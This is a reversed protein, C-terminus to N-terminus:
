KFAHVQADREGMRMCCASAPKGHKSAAAIPVLRNSAGEPAMQQRAHESSSSTSCWARHGSSCRCSRLCQLAMDEVGELLMAGQLAARLVQYRALPHPLQDWLRTVAKTQIGAEWQSCATQMTDAHHVQGGGCDARCATDMSTCWVGAWKASASPRM